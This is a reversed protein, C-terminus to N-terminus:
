NESCGAREDGGDYGVVLWAREDSGFNVASCNARIEGQEETLVGLQGMKGMSYVFRELFLSQNAAFDSVTTETSPHGYLVQDSTLLGQGNVVGVYYSNDFAEPSYCDLATVNCSGPAPCTAYLGEAFAEELTPDQCPFLRDEFSACHAVGITHSGSLAVLDVADLDHKGFADLLVTVNSTPDPLFEIVEDISAASRCDRRGLPVSYDPGGSQFM